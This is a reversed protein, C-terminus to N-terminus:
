AEAEHRVQLEDVVASLAILATRVEELSAMDNQRRYDDIAKAMGSGAGDAWGLLEHISMKQVRARAKRLEAVHAPAYQEEASSPITTGILDRLKM